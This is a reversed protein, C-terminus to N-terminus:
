DWLKDSTGLVPSYCMDAITQELKPTRKGSQEKTVQDVEGKRERQGGKYCKDNKSVYEM